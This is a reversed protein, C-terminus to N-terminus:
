IYWTNTPFMVNPANAFIATIGRVFMMTGLTVIFPQLEKKAVLYGNVFGVLGGFLIMVPICAFLPLGMTLLTGGAVAAGICVSGTSLDTKGMSIPMLVGLALMAYPALNQGISILNYKDIFNPNIATFVSAMILTVLINQSLDRTNRRPSSMSELLKKM